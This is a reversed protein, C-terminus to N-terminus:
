DFDFRPLAIRDVSKFKKDNLTLLIRTFSLIRIILNSTFKVLVLGYFNYLINWKLPLLYPTLYDLPVPALYQSTLPKDVFSPPATIGPGAFDSRSIRIFLLYKLKAPNM